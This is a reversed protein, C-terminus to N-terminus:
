GRFQVGVYRWRPGEPTDKIEFGAETVQQRLADAEAWNRAQRSGERRQILELVEPTPEINTEEGEGQERVPSGYEPGDAPLAADGM